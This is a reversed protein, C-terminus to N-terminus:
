EYDRIILAHPHNPIGSISLQSYRYTITLGILKSANKLYQKRIKFSADIKLNFENGRPDRVKFRANGQERGGCDMVDIITGDEENFQKMKLINNCRYHLYSSNKIKKETTIHSGLLRKIMIGEYGCYISQEFIQKVQNYNAAVTVSVLCFSLSNGGNKLYKKYANVLIDYRYEFPYNNNLDIDFIYYKIEKIRKHVDGGLRGKNVISAINQLKEKHIYLEGDLYCDSPLYNLYEKIDNKIHTIHNFPINKRSCMNVEGKFLISLCRIGDLKVQCYVPYTIQKSTTFLHALMPKVIRRTEYPDGATYGENIKNKYKSKIDSFARANLCKDTKKMLPENIDIIKKGDESGHKIIIHQGDYGGQWMYVKSNAGIIRLLNTKWPYFNVKNDMDIIRNINDLNYEEENVLDM